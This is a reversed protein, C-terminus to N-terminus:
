FLFFHNTLFNITKRAILKVKKIDFNAQVIPNEPCYGDTILQASVTAIVLAFLVLVKM